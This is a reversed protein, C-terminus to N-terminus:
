RASTQALATGLSAAYFNRGNEVSVPKGQHMPVQGYFTQTQSEQGPYWAEIKVRNTMAGPLECFHDQKATDITQVQGNALNTVRLIAGRSLAGESGREWRLQFTDGADGRYAPSITFKKADVALTAPQQIAAYFARGQKRKAFLPANQDPRPVELFRAITSNPSTDGVRVMTVDVKIRDGPEANLEVRNTSGVVKLKGGQKETPRVGAIFSQSSKDAQSMNTITVRAGKPLASTLAAISTKGAGKESIGVLFQDNTWAQYTPVTASNRVTNVGNRMVWSTETVGQANSSATRYRRGFPDKGSFIVPAAVSLNQQSSLESTTPAGGEIAITERAEYKMAQRVRPALLRGFAKSHSREGQAQVQADIDAPGPLAVAASPMQVQMQVKSGPLYGRLVMQYPDVRGRSYIDERYTTVSATPRTMRPVVPQPRHHHPRPREKAAPRGPAGAAPGPEMSWAPLSLLAVVLCTLSGSMRKM